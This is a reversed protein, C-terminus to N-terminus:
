NLKIEHVHVNKRLTECKWSINERKSCNKLIFVTISKGLINTSAILSQLKLTFDPNMILLCSYTFYCTKRYTAYAV